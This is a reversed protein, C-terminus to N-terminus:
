FTQVWAIDFAYNTMKSNQYSNSAYNFTINTWVFPYWSVNDKETGDSNTNGKFSIFYKTNATLQYPTWLTYIWDPTNSTTISYTTWNVNPYSWQAIKLTWNSSFNSGGQFSIASISCDKNPTICVWYYYSSNTWKYDYTKVYYDWVPEVYEGIYINKVEVSKTWSQQSIWWRLNNNNSSDWNYNWTIFTSSSYYNWPWYSGANVRTSSTTVSWSFPFMYNNGWQYYWWCNEASLTDWDNYVVTAWLNKDAITIWTEWDSSASIIWETPNHYIGANWTWQYIVTWNSDPVVPTDKFWRIPHGEARYTSDNYYLFSPYLTLRRAYDDASVYNSSSWYMGMSNQSSTSANSYWREWAFPMHFCTRWWNWTTISLWTMITNLWQWDDVTPVHFGNPCPWQMDSVEVPEGIYISM